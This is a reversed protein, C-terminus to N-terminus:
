REQYVQVPNMHYHDNLVMVDTDLDCLEDRLSPERRHVILSGFLGDPRELGHHAHWSLTGAPEAIFRYTFNQGPLIGCQTIQSVGDMWVTGHQYMGHWHITVPADELKNLVNVVIQAGEYVEITPGPVMRNVQRPSVWCLACRTFSVFRPCSRRRCRCCCRVTRIPRFYGDGVFVQDAIDQAVPTLDGSTYNKSCVRGQDDLYMRKSDATNTKSYYTMSMTTEVVFDYSCVDETCLEACAGAALAAAAVLVYTFTSPM